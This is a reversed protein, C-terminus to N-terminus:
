AQIRIHDAAELFVAGAPLAADVFRQFFDHLPPGFSRGSGPPVARLNLLETQRAAYSPVLDADESHGAVMPEPGSIARGEGGMSLGVGRM